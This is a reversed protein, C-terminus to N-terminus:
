PAFGSVTGSGTSYSYSAPETTFPTAGIVALVGREGDELQVSARGEADPTIEDVNVGSSGSRILRLEWRQPLTGTTRVFGKAEWGSDAQEADDTFGVEPIRINDILMGAANYAADQVLLFRLLIKKGAYPTLDMQEEVWTGRTGKDPEVGPTGSVGTLGHGFNADQPDETTTHEGELTTWTSGGDTSVAAFAYDWNLEIEYWTSFQLTASQVASLDVERTLTSVSEDGRRSYWMHTGGAPQADTLGVTEAGDFTLDLPGRLLGLYDVGYQSVTASTRGSELETLAAAGPLLEYAYRGDAVKPDNLVNAVAWDGYLDAFTKVDPRKRAAMEAFLEPNNGAGSKILEALGTDGAYHEYFYRM